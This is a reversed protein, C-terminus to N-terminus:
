LSIYQQVVEPAMHSLIVKPIHIFLPSLKSPAAAGLTSCGLRRCDVKINYVEIDRQLAMMLSQSIFLTRLYAGEWIGGYMREIISDDDWGFQVRCFDALDALHPQCSSVDQMISANPASFSTLPHIYKDIVTRRPSIVPFAVHLQRTNASSTMTLTMPLCLAYNKFLTRHIHPSSTQHWPFFHMSCTGASEATFLSRTPLPSGVALYEGTTTEVRWSRLSFGIEKLWHLEMSSGMRQICKFMIIIGTMKASRIICLAGFILVDSDETMVADIIGRVNMAALEAEAESPAETWRFGFLDVMCQFDRTLWHPSHRVKHGKDPLRTLGDFVFIIHLPLKLLVRLRFFLTRLEPSKGAGLM